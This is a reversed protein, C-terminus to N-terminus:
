ELKKQKKWTKGLDMQLYLLLLSQRLMKKKSNRILSTAKIGNMNPMRMDMLICDFTHVPSEIFLKVAEEGDCAESYSIGESSLVAGLITRNLPNDEALLINSGKLRRADYKQSEREQEQEEESWREVKIRIYFTTGEGVKNEVQINGNMSHIIKKAISLGLGMSEAANHDNEQERTFPDFLRSIFEEKIGTGTDTVVFCIEAQNEKTEIEEDEFVKLSIAGGPNTYKISNNIFNVLVQQIATKNGLYEPSFDNEVSVEFRLGAEKAREDVLLATNDLIEQLSFPVKVQDLVDRELRSAESLDTVIAAMYEVTSEISDLNKSLTDKDGMNQKIMRVLGILAGM